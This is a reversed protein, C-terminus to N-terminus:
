FSPDSDAWPPRKDDLIQAMIETVALALLVPILVM